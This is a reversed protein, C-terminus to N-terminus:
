VHALAERKKAATYEKKMLLGPIFWGIIASMAILLLDLEYNTYVTIISCAWFVIGGWFMPRFKYVAGTIFTPLGYLILFLPSTFESLKFSPDHGTLAKYEIFM